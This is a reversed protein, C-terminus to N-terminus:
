RWIQVEGTAVGKVLHATRVEARQNGVMEVVVKILLIPFQPLVSQRYFCQRTPGFTSEFIADPAEITVALWDLRAPM